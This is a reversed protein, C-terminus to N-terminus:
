MGKCFKRDQRMGPWYYRICLIELTRKRGPHAAYISDHNLAIVEKVLKKPVVLQHEGNMRRRYIVREEYYFYESKGKFKGVELSNCFKDAGREAKVVAKPLTQNTTVAQV